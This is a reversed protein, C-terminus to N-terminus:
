GSEAIVGCQKAVKFGAEGMDERREDIPEDPNKSSECVSTMKVGSSGHLPRAKARGKM